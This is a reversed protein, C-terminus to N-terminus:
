PLVQGDQSILTGSCGGTVTRYQTCETAPFTSTKWRLVNSTSQWRWLIMSKDPLVIWYDGNGTEILAAKDQVAKVKPVLDERGAAKMDEPFIQMAKETFSRDHVYFLWAHENAHTDWYEKLWPISLVLQEYPASREPLTNSGEIKGDERKLVAAVVFNKPFGSRWLDVQLNEEHPNGNDWSKGFDLNHHSNV